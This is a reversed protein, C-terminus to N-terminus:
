ITSAEGLGQSDINRDGRLDRSRDKAM